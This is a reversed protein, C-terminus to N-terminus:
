SEPELETSKPRTLDEDYFSIKPGRKLDIEGILISSYTRNHISRPWGTLVAKLGKRLSRKRLGRRQLEVAQRTIGRFLGGGHGPEILELISEQGPEVTFLVEAYGIDPVIFDRIVVNLSVQRALDYENSSRWDGGFSTRHLVRFNDPNTPREGYASPALFFCLTLMSLFPRLLLPKGVLRPNINWYQFVLPYSM